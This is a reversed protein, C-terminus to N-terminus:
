RSKIRTLRQVIRKTSASGLAEQLADLIIKTEEAVPFEKAAQKREPYRYSRQREAKIAKEMAGEFLRRTDADQAVPGLTTDLEVEWLKIQDTVIARLVDSLPKADSLLDPLRNPNQSLFRVRRVSLPVALLEDTTWVLVLAVTNPNDELLARFAPLQDSALAPRDEPADLFELRIDYDDIQLLFDAGAEGVFRNDPLIRVREAQHSSVFEDALLRLLREANIRRLVAEGTPQGLSAQFETLFDDLTADTETM